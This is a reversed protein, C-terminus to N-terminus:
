VSPATAMRDSRMSIRHIIFMALGVTSMTIGLAFGVRYNSGMLFIAWGSALSLAARYANRICSTTSTISGIDQRPASKYVMIDAAAYLPGAMTVCLSLIVLGAKDHVQMAWAFCLVQAVWYALVIRFGGWRDIICGIPYALLMNLLGAWSLAHFIDGRELQLTEKSWFWLWQNNMVLYSNILAVGAMLFFIRKDSASIKFTSWIKFKETAPNRIPPEKIFIATVTTITMVTGALVFPVWEGMAILGGATQMVIFGVLGGASGLISTARALLDRPICDISLLPFTSSKIDMFIIKMIWLGLLVGVWKSEDFLPFLFLSAIIFPASLFLFPKRRGIRTVTHDSKWSFYMVLFSLAFGNVAGVTGQINERVGLELLRMAVLPVVLVDAMGWGVNCFGILAINRFMLKRDAYYAVLEADNELSPTSAPAAPAPSSPQSM